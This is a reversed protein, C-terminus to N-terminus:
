TVTGWFRPILVPTKRRYEEFPEGFQAALREDEAPIACLLYLVLGAWLTLRDATLRPTLLVSLLIWAHMGHRVYAYIGTTVLAPPGQTLGFLSALGFGRVLWVHGALWLLFGATQWAWLDTVSEGWLVRGDPQWAAILGTTLVACLTLYLPRPRGATLSHLGGWILMLGVNWLPVTWPMWDTVTHPAALLPFSCDHFIWWFLVLASGAGLIGTAWKM